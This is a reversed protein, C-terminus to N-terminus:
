KQEPQPQVVPAVPASPTASSKKITRGSDGKYMFQYESILLISSLMLALLSIVLLWTYVDNRPKATYTQTYRTRTTTVAM